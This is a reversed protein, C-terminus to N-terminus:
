IGKCILSICRKCWHKYELWGRDRKCNLPPQLCRGEELEPLVSLVGEEMSLVMPTLPGLNADSIGFGELLKQVCNRYMHSAGRELEWGPFVM